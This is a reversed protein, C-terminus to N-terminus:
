PNLSIFLVFTWVTMATTCLSGTVLASVIYRISGKRLTVIAYWGVVALCVTLMILATISVLTLHSM